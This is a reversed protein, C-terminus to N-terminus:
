LSLIVSGIDFQCLVVPSSSNGLNERYFEISMGFIVFELNPLGLLGFQSSRCRFYFFIDAKGWNISLPIPSFPM